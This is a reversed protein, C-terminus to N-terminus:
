CSYNLRAVEALISNRWFSVPARIFVGVFPREEDRMGDIRMGVEFSEVQSGWGNREVKVDVGGFM